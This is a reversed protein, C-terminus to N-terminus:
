QNAGTDNLYGLAAQARRMTLQRTGVLMGATAAMNRGRNSAMAGIIIEIDAAIQKAKRTRRGYSVGADLCGIAPQDDADVVVTQARSAFAMAAGLAGSSEIHVTTTTSRSADELAIMAVGAGRAEQARSSLRIVLGNTGSHAIGTILAAIKLWGSHDILGFIELVAIGTQADLTLEPVAFVEAPLEARDAPLCNTAGTWIEPQRTTVPIM